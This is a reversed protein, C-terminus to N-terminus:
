HQVGTFPTSPTPQKPLLYTPARQTTCCSHGTVKSPQWRRRRSTPCTVTSTRLIRCIGHASCTLELLGVTKRSGDDEM